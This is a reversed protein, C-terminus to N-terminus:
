HIVGTEEDLFLTDHFSTGVIHEKGDNDYSKIKILPIRM